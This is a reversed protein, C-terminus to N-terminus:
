YIDRTTTSKLKIEKEMAVENNQKSVGIRDMRVMCRWKEIYPVGMGGEVRLLVVRMVVEAPGKWKMRQPPPDM